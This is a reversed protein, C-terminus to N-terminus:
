LRRGNVRGLDPFGPKSIRWRLYGAPVRVQELPTTGIRIWPEAPFFYDQVEVVAGGPTSNVSVTRTASAIVRAFEPDNSLYKAADRV